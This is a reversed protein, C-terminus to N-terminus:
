PHFIDEPDELTPHQPSYKSRCPHFYCSPPRFQMIPLKMIHGGPCHLQPCSIPPASSL